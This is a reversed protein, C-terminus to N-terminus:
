FRKGLLLLNKVAKFSSSSALLCEEWKGRKRGEKQCVLKSGKRPRWSRPICFFYFFRLQKKSVNKWANYKKPTYKRYSFIFYTRTGVCYLKVFVCASYHAKIRGRKQVWVNPSIPSAPNKQVHGTKGEKKQSIDFRSSFVFYTAYLFQEKEGSNIKFNTIPNNTKLHFFDKKKKLFGFLNGSHLRTLLRATYNGKRRRRGGGGGKRGYWLFCSSDIDIDSLSCQVVWLMESKTYRSVNRALNKSSLSLFLSPEIGIKRERFSLKKKYTHFIRKAALFQLPSPPCLTEYKKSWM